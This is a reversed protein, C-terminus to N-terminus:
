ENDYCMEKIYTLASFQSSFVFILLFTFSEITNVIKVFKNVCSSCSVNVTAGNGCIRIFLMKAYKLNLTM